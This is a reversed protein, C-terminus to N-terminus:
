EMDKDVLHQTYQKDTGNIHKILWDSLFETIENLAEHGKVDYITVFTEVKEMMKVHQAKHAEVDPYGASEMMLEEREFHYRTYDLLNSLADREFSEDMVYDYATIFQNLLNILRKHDDDLSKIGVSYSDKWVVLSPNSTKKYIIPILILVGILIWSVPNAMSSLFGLFIAVIILGIVAAYILSKTRKNM